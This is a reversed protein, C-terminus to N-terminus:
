GVRLWTTSERLVPRHPLPDARSTTGLEPSHTRYRSKPKLHSSASSVTEIDIYTTVLSSRRRVLASARGFAHLTAALARFSHILSPWQEYYRTTLKGAAIKPVTLQFRQRRLSTRASIQSASFPTITHKAGPYATSRFRHLLLALLLSTQNPGLRKPCLRIALVSPSAVITYKLTSPYGSKLLMPM